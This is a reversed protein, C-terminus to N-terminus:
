HGLIGAARRGFWCSCDTGADHCRIAAEQRIFNCDLTCVIASPDPLESVRVLGGNTCSLLRNECVKIGNVHSDSYNSIQHHGGFGFEAIQLIQLGNSEDPILLMNSNALVFKHASKSLEHIM